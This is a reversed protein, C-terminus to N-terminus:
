NLVERALYQKKAKPLKLFAKTAMEESKLEQKLKRELLAQRTKADRQSQMRQMKEWIKKREYSSQMQRTGYEQILLIFVILGAISAILLIESM